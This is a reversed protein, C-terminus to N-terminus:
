KKTQKELSSVLKMNGYDRVDIKKEAGLLAIYKQATPYAIKLNDAIDRINIAEKQKSLFDLIKKKTDEEM